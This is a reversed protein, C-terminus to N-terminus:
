LSGSFFYRAVCHSHVCRLRGSLVRLAEDVFYEVAELDVEKVFHEVGAVVVLVVVITRHEKFDDVGFNLLVLADPVQKLHPVALADFHELPLHIVGQLSPTNTPVDEHELLFFRAVLREQDVHDREV